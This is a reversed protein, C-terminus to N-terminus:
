FLCQGKEKKASEPIYHHEILVAMIRDAIAKMGKDGPHNAVGKHEFLGKAKMQDDEGLDGLEVCPIGKEKAYARIEGDGPHRWFGTTIVMKAKGSGDLHMVLRDLERMFVDSDYDEKKVNEIFRLVIVDACFRRAEDYLSLKESGNKYGSEWSAVQCICFVAEPDIEKINKELLHVYDKEKASAAMGFENYWGIEPLIGHLTISNGVFMVRIGRGNLSDFRVCDSERLQAESSVTNKSLQVYLENDKQNSFDRDTVM